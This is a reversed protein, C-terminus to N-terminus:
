IIERDSKKGKFQHVVRWLNELHKIIKEVNKPEDM